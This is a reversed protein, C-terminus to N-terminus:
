IEGIKCIIEAEIEKKVFEPDYRPDFVISYQQKYYVNEVSIVGLIKSILENLNEDTWLICGNESIEKEGTLSNIRLAPEFIVQKLKGKDNM